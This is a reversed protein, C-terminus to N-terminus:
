SNYMRNLIQSAQFKTLGTTDFDRFRKRINEIQKYTAPKGGWKQVESLDWIHRYEDHYLNLAIYARDLAKQYPILQDGILVRGLQDPCPITMKKKGPLSCILRGDPMKFWNIGHLDYSTEKAWLKVIEINRMWSDPSDFANAAKLPLDFLKGQVDKAKRLPINSM